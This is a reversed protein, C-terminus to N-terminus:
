YVRVWYEGTIIASKEIFKMAGGELFFHDVFRRTWGALVLGAQYQGGQDGQGVKRDRGQHSLRIGRAHRGGPRFWTDDREKMDPMRIMKVFERHLLNVIDKPTRAPVLIGVWNDGEIEPYGAETMTPVDPQVQSRTKSTVALARLTGAKIYQGTAAITSFGIPSHGAVVSAISPGAGSYPVHVLDLKLSQRMHEGALHALM